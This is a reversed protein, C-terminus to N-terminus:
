PSLSVLNFVSDGYYGYYRASEGRCRAEAHRRHVSGTAPPRHYLIRRLEPIPEPHEDVGLDLALYTEAGHIRLAASQGGRRDGGAEDGAELARLLRKDLPCAESSRFARAMATITDPGVPM